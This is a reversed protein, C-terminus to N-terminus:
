HLKGSQNKAALAMQAKELAIATAGRNQLTYAKNIAGIKQSSETNLWVSQIYNKLEATQTLSKAGGLEILDNAEKFNQYKPGGFAIPLGYATAELINHLGNTFAGGIYAATGYKYVSSLMGITNLWLLGSHFNENKPLESWKIFGEGWQNQFNLAWDDNLEHPAIIINLSEKYEKLIPLLFHLDEPWASGIIITPKNSLLLPTLQHIKPASEVIQIVRDFRTDGAKIVKAGFYPTLLQVSEQNQVLLYSFADLNNRLSAGYPKFFFQTPRFIGSILIAPIKRKKIQFLYGPWFDYKTWIILDPKLKDIFNAANNGMDLPLYFVADALPWDMRIDYGSPSFFTVIFQWDPNQAKFAELVIRGQEFEGLSPAHM